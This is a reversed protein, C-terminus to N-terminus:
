VVVPYGDVLVDPFTRCRALPCRDGVDLGWWNVGYIGNLEFGFSTLLAVFAIGLELGYPLVHNYKAM